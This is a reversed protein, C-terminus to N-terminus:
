FGGTTAATPRSTSPRWRRSPTARSAATGSWDLARVVPHAQLYHNSTQASMGGKRQRALWDSVKAADLDALRQAGTGDLIARIRTATQAVHKPTGDELELFRIYDQFHEAIPRNRHRAFPDAVGARVKAAESEAARALEETVRRDRCGKAERKIGDGDVYRYYWVRGRKRLSAM